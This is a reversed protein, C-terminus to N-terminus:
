RNFVVADEEVKMVVAAHVCVSDFREVFAVRQCPGAHRCDVIDLPKRGRHNADVLAVRKAILPNGEVTQEELGANRSATPLEQSRHM